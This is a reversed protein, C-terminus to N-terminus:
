DNKDCLIEDKHNLMVNLVAAQIEDLRSNLIGHNRGSHMLHAIASSNTVIAGGDGYCHLPKLPHFSYCVVNMDHVLPQYNSQCADIISADIVEDKCATAFTAMGDKRSCTIQKGAIHIANFVSKHLVKNRIYIYEGSVGMFAMLLADAGSGCSVCYKAGVMEAFREEFREAEPGNIYKGSHLVRSMAEDIECKYKRYEDCLIKEDKM